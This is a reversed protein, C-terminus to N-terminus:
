DEWHELSRVEDCENLFFHYDDWTGMVDLMWYTYTDYSSKMELGRDLILKEVLERDEPLVGIAFYFTNNM